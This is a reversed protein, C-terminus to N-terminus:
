RLPRRWGSAQYSWLPRYRPEGAKLFVWMKLWSVQLNRPVLAMQMISVTTRAVSAWSIHVRIKAAPTLAAM